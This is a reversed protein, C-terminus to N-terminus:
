RQHRQPEALRRRLLNADRLATNAGVGRGPTMTHIADGLLTVHSSKWPPVPESTSVRIPLASDPDARSLLERLHPHWNATLDLAM